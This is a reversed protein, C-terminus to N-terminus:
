VETHKFEFVTNDESLYDSNDRIIRNKIGEELKKVFDDNTTYGEPDLVMRNNVVSGAKLVSIVFKIKGRFKSVRDINFTVKIRDGWSGVTLTKKMNSYISKFREVFNTVREKEIEEMTKGEILDAIENRTVYQIQSGVNPDYVSPRSHSMQKSTSSSYRDSVGYWKDNIFLYIPYWGYSKVVYYKQNKSNIDWYGELNSGKFPIRNTVYERSNINSVRKPKSTRPDVFDDQTINEYDGKPRYNLIYLNYYYKSQSEDMGLTTLMISFLKILESASLQQQERRRNVYKFLMIEKDNLPNSNKLDNLAELIISKLEM